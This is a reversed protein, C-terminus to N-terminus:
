RHGGVGRPFGGLRDFDYDRRAGTPTGVLHGTDHLPDDGLVIQRLLRDHDDILRTARAAFSEKRGFVGFTVGVFQDDSQRVEEGRWEGRANGEVPLIQRRDRHHCEVFEDEPDVGVCGVLRGLFVNL